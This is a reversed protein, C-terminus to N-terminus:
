ETAFAEMEKEMSELLEKPIVTKLSRELGKSKMAKRLCEPNRCLYAGRGNKKGTQDFVVEGETTRLIRLMERKDKKEGCGACQRVPARRVTGM